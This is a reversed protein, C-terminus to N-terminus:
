EDFAGRQYAAYESSAPYRLRLQAVLSNEAAKNGLQREIKIALWLVEVSLANNKEVFGLHFRAREVDGQDLSWRAMYVNALPGAPDYQLSRVFYAKAAVVDHVKLSCSGANNAAVSPTRYARNELASEFYRMAQRERGSDCLLLGYNNAYDPNNPSLRIARLFNNEALQVEGQAMFVLARMGYADAYNPALRLVNAVEELAVDYQRQEYYGIALQMRIDIRRSEAAQNVDSSSGVRGIATKELAGDSVCGSLLMSSAMAMAVAVDRTHKIM